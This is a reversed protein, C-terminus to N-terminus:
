PQLNSSTCRRRHDDPTSDLRVMAWVDRAICYQAVHGGCSRDYRWRGDDDKLRVPEIIGREKLDAMGREVQRLGLGTFESISAASARGLRGDEYVKRCLALMVILGNRGVQRSALETVLGKQLMTFTQPPYRVFRGPEGLQGEKRSRM